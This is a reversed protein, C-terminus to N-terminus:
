ITFLGAYGGLIIINSFEKAQQYSNSIVEKQKQIFNELESDEEKAEESELREYISNLSDLLKEIGDLSASVEGNSRSRRV